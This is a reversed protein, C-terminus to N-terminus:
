NQGASYVTCDFKLLSNGSFSINICTSHLLINSRILKGMVSSCKYLEHMQSMATPDPVGTM